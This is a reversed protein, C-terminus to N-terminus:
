IAAASIGLEMAVSPCQSIFGTSVLGNFKYLTSIRSM